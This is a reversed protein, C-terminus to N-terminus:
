FVKRSLNALAFPSYKLPLNQFGLSKTGHGKVILVPYQHRFMDSMYLASWIKLGM